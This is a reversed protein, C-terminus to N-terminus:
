CQEDDLEHSDRLEPDDVYDELLLFPSRRVVRRSRLLSCSWHSHDYDTAMLAGRIGGAITAM